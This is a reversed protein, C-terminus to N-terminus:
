YEARPETSKAVAAAARVAVATMTLQHHGVVVVAARRSLQRFRQHRELPEPYEAPHGEQAVAALLVLIHARRSTSTPPMYIAVPEAAELSQDAVARVVRSVYCM